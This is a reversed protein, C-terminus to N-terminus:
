TVETEGDADEEEDEGMLASDILKLLELASRFYRKEQRDVWFLEGQWTSHEKGLIRIVFNERRGNQLREGSM